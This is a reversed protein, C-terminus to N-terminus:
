DGGPLDNGYAEIYVEPDFLFRKMKNRDILVEEFGDIGCSADIEGWPNGGNRHPVPSEHFYINMGIAMLVVNKITKLYPIKKNYNIDMEDMQTIEDLSFPMRVLKTNLIGEPIEQLILSMLYSLKSHFDYIRDVPYIDEVGDYKVIKQERKWNLKEPYVHITGGNLEEETFSIHEIIGNWPGKPFIFNHASSSNTEFSGERIWTQNSKM